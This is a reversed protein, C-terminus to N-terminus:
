WRTRCTWWSPWRPTSAALEEVALISMFFSAGAGGYQEPIEIGMLGLEFCAKIIEPTIKADHDMKSVHPKVQEEAFQRVQEAFMKEDETLQTLPAPADSM